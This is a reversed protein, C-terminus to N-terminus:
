QCPEVAFKISHLRKVEFRTPTAQRVGATLILRLPEDRCTGFVLGMSTFDARMTFPGSTPGAFDFTIWKPSAVRSGLFYGAQLQVGYGAPLESSGEVVLSHLAARYGPPAVFNFSIRCNTLLQPPHDFSFNPFDLELTKRDESLRVTAQNSGECGNGYLEVDGEITVDNSPLVSPGGADLASGGDPTGEPSVPGADALPVGADQPPNPRENCRRARFQLSHLEEIRAYGTGRVLQLGTTVRLERPGSCPSWLEPEDFVQKTVQGGAEFAARRVGSPKSEGTWRGRTSVNVSAAGDSWSESSVVATMGAPAYAVGEPADLVVTVNCQSEADRSRSTRAVDFEHFGILFMEQMHSFLIADRDSCGPGELTVRAIKPAPLSESQASQALAPPAATTEPSAGCSLLASGSALLVLLSIRRSDLMSAKRM